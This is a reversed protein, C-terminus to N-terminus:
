LRVPLRPLSLCGYFQKHRVWRVRDNSTPWQSAQGVPLLGLHGIYDILTADFTLQHITHFDAGHIAEVLALIHQDDM